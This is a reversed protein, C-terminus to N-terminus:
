ALAALAATLKTDDTSALAAYLLKVKATVTTGLASTIEDATVAPTGSSTTAAVGNTVKSNASTVASSIQNLQSIISTAYAGAQNTSTNTIAM